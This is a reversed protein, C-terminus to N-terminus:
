TIKCPWCSTMLAIAADRQASFYTESIGGVQGSLGKHRFAEIHGDNPVLWLEKPQQAADFLVQSHRAPIVRDQEGYTLLLPVPSVKLFAIQPRM